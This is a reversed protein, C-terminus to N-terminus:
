KSMEKLKKLVSDLEKQAGSPARRAPPRAEQHTPLLIRREMPYPRAQPHTPPGPKPGPKSKGSKMRFWFERLKDRFLIGIVVLVILTM